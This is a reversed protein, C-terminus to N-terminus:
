FITPFRQFAGTRLIVAADTTRGVHKNTCFLMSKLKLCVAITGLMLPVVENDYALTLCFHSVTPFLKHM